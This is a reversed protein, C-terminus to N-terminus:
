APSGAAPAPAPQDLSSMMFQLDFAEKRIRTDYYCLVLTILLVPGTIAGGIAGSMAIAYALWEPFRGTRVSFVMSMFFPGQFVIVGVYAIMTCLFVAVLIQWRRGKTLQVSRRLAALVGVRELLLAPISVAYRLSWLLWLGIGALYAAVMVVGVIVGIVPRSPGRGVASMVGVSIGVVIAIGIGMLILMGYARIIAVVVVGIIRWFSGRVKGYAGRVTIQRGLYSESVAFTTAGIAMSYLACFLFLFALAFLVTGAVLSPSPPGAGFSPGQNSFVLVTFPISFASPIAMIGVFLWFHQRYLRFTRDLLEGLALPRLETADM